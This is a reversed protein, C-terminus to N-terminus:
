FAALHLYLITNAKLQHKVLDWLPLFEFTMMWTFILCWLLYWALKLIKLNSFQIPLAEAKTKLQPLRVCKEFTLVTVLVLLYVVCVCM